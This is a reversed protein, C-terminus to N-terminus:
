DAVTFEGLWPRLGVAFGTVSLLRATKARGRLSAKTRRAQPHTVADDM